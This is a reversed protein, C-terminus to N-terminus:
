AQEARKWAAYLRRRAGSLGPRLFPHTILATCFAIMGFLGSMVVVVGRLFGTGVGASGAIAAFFLGFLVVTLLMSIVFVAARRTVNRAALKHDAGATLWVLHDRGHHRVAGFRVQAGLPLDDIQMPKAGSFDDACCFYWRGDIRLRFQRMDPGLHSAFLNKDRHELGGETIVGDADALLSPAPEAIASM